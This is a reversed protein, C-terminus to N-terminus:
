ATVGRKGETINHCFVYQKLEETLERVGDLASISRELEDMDLPYIANALNYYILTLMAAITTIRSGVDMKEKDM